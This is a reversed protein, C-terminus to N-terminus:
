RQFAAVRTRAVHCQRCHTREPHTTRIEERAAPGDHCAVCDERMFVAHPIVPPALDHARSGPRLDQRLGAFDNEVFVADTERFVHCQNCRSSASMGETRDHPSPPAFGIGPVDMGREHHCSTCAAGFPPHPIVPPAGDFARREAREVAVTKYAGERGAVPVKGAAGDDGCATLTLLAVLCAVAGRATGSRASRTM